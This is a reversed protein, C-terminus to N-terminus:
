WWKDLAKIKAEFDASTTKEMTLSIMENTGDIEQMTYYMQGKEFGYGVLTAPALPINQAAWAEQNTKLEFASPYDKYCLFMKSNSIKANGQLSVTLNGKQPYKETLYTGMQMEGLQNSILQHLPYLNNPPLTIASASQKWEMVQNDGPALFFGKLTENFGLSPFSITYNKGAALRLKSSDNGLVEVHLRGVSFLPQGEGELSFGGLLADSMKSIEKVKVQVVGQVYPTGDQKEFVTVQGQSPSPFLIRVGDETQFNGGSSFGVLFNQTIPQHQAMYNASTYGIEFENLEEKGGCSTLSFLFLLMGLLTSTYKIQM